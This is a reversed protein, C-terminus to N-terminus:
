RRAPSANSLRSTESSCGATAPAGADLTVLINVAGAKVTEAGVVRSLCMRLVQKGLWARPIGGRGGLRPRHWELSVANRHRIRLEVVRERTAIRECPPVSGSLASLM